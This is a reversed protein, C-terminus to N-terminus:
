TPLWKSSSHLCTRLNSDLICYRMEFFVLKIELKYVARKDRQLLEVIAKFYHAANWKWIKLTHM